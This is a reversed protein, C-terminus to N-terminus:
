GYGRKVEKLDEIVKKWEEVKGKVKDDWSKVDDRTLITIEGGQFDGEVDGLREEMFGEIELYAEKLKKLHEKDAKYIGREAAELLRRAIEELAWPNNEEFWKRMEKDAVFTDVIGDFVWNEVIDATAAWGYVRGVRESIDVAGKYGHRKKGEIWAPNLLKTRVTREMEEKMERVSPREPDRTDGFYVEVKKGSVTEVACTFGGHYGYFCCCDLTDFDDSELKEYTVNVSKLLSVLERHASEGRVGEGYAYSGWDIWVEALDDKEKWASAYVAYNVGDGVTGPKESFVRYTAKRFIKDKDEGGKDLIKMM